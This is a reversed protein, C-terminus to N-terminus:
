QVGYSLILIFWYSYFILRCESLFYSISVTVNFNWILCFTCWRFDNCSANIIKWFEDDSGYVNKPMKIKALVGNLWVCVIYEQSSVICTNIEFHLGYKLWVCKKEEAAKNLKFCSSKIVQYYHYNCSLQGKRM